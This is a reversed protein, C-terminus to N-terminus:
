FLEGPARAAIRALTPYSRVLPGPVPVRQDRYAALLELVLKM